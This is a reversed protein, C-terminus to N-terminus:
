FDTILCRHKIMDHYQSDQNIYPILAVHIIVPVLSAINLSLIDGRVFSFWFFNHCPYFQSKRTSTSGRAQLRVQTTQLDCSGARKYTCHIM